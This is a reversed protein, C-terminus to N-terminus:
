VRAVLPCEKRSWKGRQGSTFGKSNREKELVNNKGRGTKRGGRSVYKSSCGSWCYGQADHMPFKQTLAARKDM